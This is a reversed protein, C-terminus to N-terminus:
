VIRQPLALALDKKRLLWPTGARISHAQKPSKEHVRVAKGVRAIEELEQYTGRNYQVPDADDSYTELM